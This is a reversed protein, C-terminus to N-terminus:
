QRPLHHCNRAPPTPRGRRVDAANGAQKLSQIGACVAVPSVTASVIGGSTEFRRSDLPSWSLNEREEVREREAQPWNVPSLDAANNMSAVALAITGCSLASTIRFLKNM